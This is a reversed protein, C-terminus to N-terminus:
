KLSSLNDQKGTAYRIVDWGNTGLGNWPKDLYFGRFDNLFEVANMAELVKCEVEEERVTEIAFRVSAGGHTIIDEIYIEDEESTGVSDRISEAIPKSLSNPLIVFEVEVDNVGKFEKDGTLKYVDMVKVLYTAEFPLEEEESVFTKKHQYFTEGDGEYVLIFDNKKNENLYGRVAGFSFTDDM